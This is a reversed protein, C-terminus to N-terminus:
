TVKELPFVVPFLTRFIPKMKHYILNKVQETENADMWYSYHLSTEEELLSNQDIKPKPTLNTVSGLSGGQDIKREEFGLDIALSNLNPNNKKITKALEQNLSNPFHLLLAELAKAKILNPIDLKFAGLISLLRKENGLLVQAFDNELKVLIKDPTNEKFIPLVWKKEQEQLILELLELSILEQSKDGQNIMTVIQNVTLPDHKFSLCFLIDNKTANIELLILKDLEPYSKGLDKHCILLYTYKQIRDELLQYYEQNELNQVQKNVLNQIVSTYLFDTVKLNKQSNHFNFSTNKQILSTQLFLEILQLLRGFRQHSLKLSVLQDLIKELQPASCSKVIEILNETESVFISEENESNKKIFDSDNARGAVDITEISLFKNIIQMVQEVPGLHQPKNTQLVVEKQVVEKDVESERTIPGTLSSLINSLEIRYFYILKRSVLLWIILIAFVLILLALVKYEFSQITSVIFILVAAILQGITKGFGDAYNQTLGRKEIPYAQYLLNITPAYVSRYLSREFVKSLSSVILLISLYGIFFSSIGIITIFGLAFIMTSLSIFVGYQKVLFKSFFSKLILELIRMGGFLLSFYSALVLPDSMQSASVEMLSFDVLFQIVVALMVAFFIYRFYPEKSIKKQNEANTASNEELPKVVPRAKIGRSLIFTLVTFSLMGFFSIMLFKDRTFFELTLLAPVSLYSIISSIGEGSSIIGNYKKTEELNFINSPLKWFVLSTFNSSVWLWAYAFFILFYLYLGEVYAVWIALMVLAFFLGFGTSAKAFGWRKEASNFLWTILLGGFGSLLYAMPLKSTGIESIFLANVFVFFYSNFIGLALSLLIMGIIFYSSKSKSM